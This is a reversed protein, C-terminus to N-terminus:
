SFACNEKDTHLMQLCNEKDIYLMQICNEKEVTSHITYMSLTRRILM